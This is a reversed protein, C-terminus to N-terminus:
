LAEYLDSWSSLVTLSTLSRKGPSFLIKKITKPFQEHNLIKLLDDIFVHCNIENITRIKDEQKELFYVDSISVPSDICGIFHNHKLWSLAGEHLNVKNGLIPYKTKHSVISIKHKDNKLKKIMDLADKYPTAKLIEDGYVIGQLHTWLTEKKRNILFYKVANKTQEINQPILDRELAVNYFVSQYNILTNDLDIGIHM